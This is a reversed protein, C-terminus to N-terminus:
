FQPDIYSHNEFPVTLVTAAKKTLGNRSETPTTVIFGSFKRNVTANDPSLQAIYVRYLQLSM